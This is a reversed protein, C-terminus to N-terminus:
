GLDADGFLLGRLTGNVLDEKAVFPVPREGDRATIATGADKDSSTLVVHLSWPLAALTRALEVGDGDPLGVDVLAAQPRRLEAQAIASAADESEIIDEFGMEDLIRSALDRFSPDDDVVLVSWAMRGIM